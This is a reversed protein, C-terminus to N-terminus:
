VALALSLQAPAVMAQTGGAPVNGTPVVVTVQVAVSATALVAVQLKVTM